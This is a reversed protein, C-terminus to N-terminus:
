SNLHSQWWNVWDHILVPQVKVKSKTCERMTATYVKSIEDENDENARYLNSAILLSSTSVARAFMHSQDKTAELHIAKMLEIQEPVDVEVGSESKKTNKAAKAFVQITNYAKDALQKTKTIRILQILPLLLGFALPNAAQKKVYIDLLDLVRSKFNVITEKADKQEQKKNPAKKRQSFIEVLKSDLAMMESDTMDADSDSEEDADEDLRHTGLAKALADDLKKAEEDEGDESSDEEEEESEEEDDDHLHDNLHGEEGNMDIVEVDSDLEDDDDDDEEQQEGDEPEQDFLEQQGRLSENSELVNTMLKLGEATLESMFAGFVHQSVKRLLASPKSIFSLLLEVLVESADIDSDDSEKHRILKDYCMKLEDLISIAESEGDYLQFIVLSYLLALAQLPAKDGVEAKKVKKLLKELISIARDKAEAVKADMPVADPNITKVLDCAFSFGNIDSLLHTFISMLRNRCLTRTKASVPPKFKAEECYAINAVTPLAIKSIWSINRSEDQIDVRRIINLIHDGLMQRRMEAEKTDDNGEIRLTPEVLIKIVSKANKDNVYSLLKEITKTKTMRDFNYTGNGGILHPLLKVLLEPEEEVAQIMVKLSKDASRNLFRDKESVHNIICRVLNHSFINQLLKGYSKTDQFLKQFLLFGWFKRERSATAAFLNESFILELYKSRKQHSKGDVAVKWFNEFDALNGSESSESEQAYQGLVINWVFHLQPNWNGTQKAQPAPEHSSDSSSSEKLAKALSKLHQLPNGSRGWPKPPFKMDPFRRRATLWVGVGEPSLALGAACLKELTHEAQSENMQALAEVIVWGCEERIWPKKDSLQFLKDLIADWQDEAEFLIKARVFSQLGFLLGLAHDKEEQGSLDGDPKTKAVLFGLVKDFTLGIYKETSLGKAGYLQGLIETLVVSIGLRAGKRGSALGRFLRRELHRQLTSEEVGEGGLLGPIIESAAALRESSDESGLKDYLRVERKLDDGKPNDVFPSTDIPIPASAPKTSKPTKTKHQRKATPAEVPPEQAKRKRKSGM